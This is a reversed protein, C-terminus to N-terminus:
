SIIQIPNKIIFNMLVILNNLMSKSIPIYKGQKWCEEVPNFEPSGVPFYEIQIDKNNKQLYEM